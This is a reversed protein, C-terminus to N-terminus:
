SDVYDVHHIASHGAAKSGFWSAQVALGGTPLWYVVDAM